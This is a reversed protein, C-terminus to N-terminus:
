IIWATATYVDLTGSSDHQFGPSTESTTSAAPQPRPQGELFLTLKSIQNILRGISDSAAPNPSTVATPIMSATTSTALMSSLTEMETNGWAAFSGSEFLKKRKLIKAKDVVVKKLDEFDPEAAEVDHTFL